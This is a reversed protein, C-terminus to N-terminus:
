ILGGTNRNPVLAVSCRCLPELPEHFVPGLPTEFPEDLGVGDPNLDPVAAHTERLREDPTVVWHRRAQDTLHGKRRAQKWSAERGMAAARIGETRAIDLARRRRLSHTYRGMMEDIFDETVTGARIRSRIQQKTAADLRRGTAAAAHGDRIEQALNFPAAAWDHRLGLMPHLIRATRRVTLGEEVARGMTARVMLLQDQNIRTILTGVQGRAALISQPDRFDFSFDISIARSLVGASAEGTAAFASRLSETLAPQDSLLM